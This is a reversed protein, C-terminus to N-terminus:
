KEFEEKDMGGKSNLGFTCPLNKEEDHGFEGRVNKMFRVTKICINKCDDSKASTSFQFHPSM